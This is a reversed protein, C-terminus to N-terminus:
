GGHGPPGDGPWQAFRPFDDGTAARLRGVHWMVRDFDPEALSTIVGVVERHESGAPAHRELHVLRGALNRCQSENV